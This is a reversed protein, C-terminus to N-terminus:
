VVKNKGGIKAKKVFATAKSFLGESTSGDLPNESVGVSVTVGDSEDESFRLKEIEHKIEEAIDFATKKNKEPLLLAFVDDGIRAAKDIPGLRKTLVGAVKKLANESALQGRKNRYGKFDDIDIIIFSCPRQYLIARGIEENLRPMIFNKNHIGTLDDKMALMQAKKLLMDSEVAISLQKSFVKIMDMDENTYTFERINNGILILGRSIRGTYLPMTVVNALKYKNKFKYEVSNRPTSSDIAIIKRKQAIEGLFGEGLKVTIGLLESDRLNNYASMVFEDPKKKPLYVVAFGSDYFHALKDLVTDLIKDLDASASILDGIQLLNSLALMKKQIELNIERTKEGYDRLEQVNDKIRRTLLNISTGLEGIEDERTVHLKREFDGSAIIKAEISMDIVPEVLNKALVLGLWAIIVSVLVIISIQSLSIEEQTLVYTSVLYTLVLLPIISMLTFAILLKYKLGQSVLSFKKFFGAM